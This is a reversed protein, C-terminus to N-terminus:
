SGLTSRLLEVVGAGGGAGLAALALAVKWARAEVADLRQRTADLAALVERHRDVAAREHAEMGAELRALRERVSAIEDARAVADPLDAPM